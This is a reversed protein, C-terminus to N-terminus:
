KAPNSFKCHSSYKVYELGGRRPRSLWVVARLVSMLTFLSILHMCVTCLDVVFFLSLIVIHLFCADFYKVHEVVDSSCILKQHNTHQQCFIHYACFAILQFETLLLMQAPKRTVNHQLSSLFHKRVTSPDNLNTSFSGPNRAWSFVSLLSNIPWDWSNTITITYFVASVFATKLQVKIICNCCCSCYACKLLLSQRSPAIYLCIWETTKRM